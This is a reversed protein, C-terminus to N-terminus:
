GVAWPCITKVTGTSNTYRYGDSCRYVRNDSFRWRWSDYYNSWCQDPRHFYEVPQIYGDRHWGTRNIGSNAGTWCCATCVLSPGCKIGKETHSSAYNGAGCPGSTTYIYDNFYAAKAVASNVADLVGLAAATAVTFSTRLVMRRSAVPRRTRSRSLREDAAPVDAFKMAM